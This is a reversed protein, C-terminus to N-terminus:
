AIEEYQSLGIKVELGDFDEILDALNMLEQGNQVDVFVKDGKIEVIGSIDIGMKKKIKAAM